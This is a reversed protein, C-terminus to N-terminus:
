HTVTSSSITLNLEAPLPSGAVDFQVTGTININSRSEVVSGKERDFYIVGELTKAKLNASGVKIRTDAETSYLVEVTESDIEDVQRGNREVPGQYTLKTKFELNQGRELRMSEDVQWSDGKNVSKSPIKEASKNALERLFTSDIQRQLGARSSEDLGELLKDRGEIATIRNDKDRVVTWKAKANQKIVDFFKDYQTGTQLIDPLASDFALNAGNPLSLKVKFSEFKQQQRITGDSERKGNTTSIAIEQESSTDISTKLFTLSQKMSNKITSLSKQDELVKLELKEQALALPPIGLVALLAAAITFRRTHNRRQM